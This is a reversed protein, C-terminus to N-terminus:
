DDDNDNLIYPFIQNEKCAAEQEVRNKCGNQRTLLYDSCANEEETEREIHTQTSKKM